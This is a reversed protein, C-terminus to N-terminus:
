KLRSVPFGRSSLLCKGKILVTGAYLVMPEQTNLVWLMLLSVQQREKLMNLYYIYEKAEESLKSGKYMGDEIDDHETILYDLTVDLYDAINCAQEFTIQLRDRITYIFNPSMGLDNSLKYYSVEYHTLLKAVNEFFLKTYKDGKSRGM